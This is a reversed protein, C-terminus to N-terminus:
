GLVGVERMARRVAGAPFLGLAEEVDDELRDVGPGAADFEYTICGGPFIQYWSGALKPGPLRDELRDLLDNIELGRQSRADDPMQLTATGALADQEDVIVVPRERGAAVAVKDALPRDDDDFVVFVQRGNVQHAELEGEVLLAYDTERGTVPIIVVTVSSSVFDVSRFETVDGRSGRVEVAGGVDCAPTLTVELFESGLRDSDLRFRSQGRESVLHEYSWGAKLDNLCPVYEATDVAQMQLVMTGTVQNIVEPDVPCAPVSRGLENNACASAALALVLLLSARRSM